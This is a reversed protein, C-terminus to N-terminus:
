EKHINQELKELRRIKWRNCLEWHDNKGGLRTMDKNDKKKSKQSSKVGPTQIVALRRLDGPNKETNQDIKIINDNPYDGSM